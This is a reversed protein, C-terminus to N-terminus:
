KSTMMKEQSPSSIHGPSPYLSRQVGTLDRFSHVFNILSYWATYVSLCVMYLFACGVITAATDIMLNLWVRFRATKGADNKALFQCAMVVELTYLVINVCIAAVLSSILGNTSPQQERFLFSV